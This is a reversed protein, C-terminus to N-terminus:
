ARNLNVRLGVDNGLVGTNAVVVKLMYKAPKFDTVFKIAEVTANNAVISAGWLVDTSVDLWNTDATADADPNNSARVTLTVTNDADDATNKYHLSFQNYYSTDIVYRYTAVAVDAADVITQNPSYAM